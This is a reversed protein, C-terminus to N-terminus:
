EPQGPIACTTHRLVDKVKAPADADVLSAGPKPKPRATRIGSSYPRPQRGHYSTNPFLNGTFPM